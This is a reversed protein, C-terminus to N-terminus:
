RRHLQIRYSSHVGELGRRFRQNRNKNRGDHSLVFETYVGVLEKKDTLVFKSVSVCAFAILACATAFLFILKKCVSKQM